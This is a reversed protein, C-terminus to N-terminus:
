GRFSLGKLIALLAVADDVSISRRIHSPALVVRLREILRIGVKCLLSEVTQDTLARYVDASGLGPKARLPLLRVLVLRLVTCYARMSRREVGVAALIRPAQASASSSFSTHAAGAGTAFTIHKM